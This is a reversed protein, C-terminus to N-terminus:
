MFELIQNLKYIGCGGFASRVKYIENFKYGIFFIQNLKKINSKMKIYIITSIM